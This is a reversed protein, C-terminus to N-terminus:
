SRATRISRGGIVRSLLHQQVTRTRHLVHSVENCFVDVAVYTDGALIIGDISVLGDDQLAKTDNSSRPQDNGVLTGLTDEVLVTQGEGSKM